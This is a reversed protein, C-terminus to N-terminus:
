AKIREGTMYRYLMVSVEARTANAKPAFIPKGDKSGKGNIYATKNYATAGATNMDEADAAAWKVAAHAWSDIDAKDAWDAVSARGYGVYEGMVESAFRYLITVFEQRTVNGNPDFLNGERGNVVNNVKAWIVANYYWSETNINDVFNVFDEPITVAPEGLYRYLVTVVMARTMNVDPKFGGDMGNVIGNVVVYEVADEAWSPIVEDPNLPKFTAAYAAYVTVDGTVNTIDVENGEADVWKDFVYSHFDSDAKTAEPATAATGYDVTSKGLETEKDEDVFTVTYKNLTAKFAPKVALDATVKTLDVDSGDLAVWKEFTYTYQVDADKTPVIDTTSASEYVLYLDEDLVTEGDEDYYIVDYRREIEEYTATYVIAEAATAGDAEPTTPTAVIEPTWGDFMYSNTATSPKKPTGLSAPYEPVVGEPVVVSYLENGDHNKFVVNYKTRLDIEKFNPSVTIDDIAVGVKNGDADVWGDLEYTVEDIDSGKEPVTEGAYLSDITPLAYLKVGGHATTEQGATATYLIDEGDVYTINASYSGVFFAHYTITPIADPDLTTPDAAEESGAPFYKMAGGRNSGPDAVNFMSIKNIKADTWQPLYSGIQLAYIGDETIVGMQHAEKGEAIDSNTKMNGSNNSDIGNAGIHVGGFNLKGGNLGNVEIILTFAEKKNAPIYEETIFSVTDNYNFTGFDYFKESSGDTTVNVKAEVTTVDKVNASSATATFKVDSASALDTISELTLTANVTGDEAVGDFTLEVVGDTAGEATFFTPDFTANIKGSTIPEKADALVDATLDTRNLIFSVNIKEGKKIREADATASVKLKTDAKFVPVFVTSDAELVFDDLDVEVGDVSWCKFTYTNDADAAKTPVEGEYTVSQGKKSVGSTLMNGDVATFKYDARTNDIAEFDAYLNMSKYVGDVKNGDEDRFILEYRYTSDAEKTPLEIGEITKAIEAPTKLLGQGAAKTGDQGIDKDGFTYQYTTAGLFEDDVGYFNVTPMLNDEIIALMRFTADTNDNSITTDANYIKFLSVSNVGFYKHASGETMRCNIYSYYIGDTDFQMMDRYQIGNWSNNYFWNNSSIVATSGDAAKVYEMDWCGPDIPTEAGEIKYVFTIGGIGTEDSFDVDGEWVKQETSGLVVPELANDGEFYTGKQTTLELPGTVVEEGEEAMVAFSSMSVVMLVALLLSFLRKM